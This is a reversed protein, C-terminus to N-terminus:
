HPHLSPLYIQLPRRPALAQATRPSQSHSKTTSCKPASSPPIPAIQRKLQLPRDSHIPHLNSYMHCPLPSAPPPPFRVKRSTSNAVWLPKGIRGRPLPPRPKTTCCVTAPRCTKDQETPYLDPLAVDVLRGTTKPSMECSACRDGYVRQRKRKPSDGPTHDRQRGAQEFHSLAISLADADVAEPLKGSRVHSAAPTASATASPIRKDKDKEMDAVTPPTKTGPPSMLKPTHVHDLSPNHNNNSKHVHDISPNHNNTKDALLPKVDASRTRM